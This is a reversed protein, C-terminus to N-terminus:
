THPLLIQVFYLSVLKVPRGDPESSLLSNSSRSLVNYRLLDDLHWYMRKNFSFSSQFYVPFLLVIRDLTSKLKFTLDESTYRYVLNHLLSWSSRKLCFDKYCIDVDVRPESALHADIIIGTKKLIYNWTVLTQTQQCRNRGTWNRHCVNDVWLHKHHHPSHTTEM